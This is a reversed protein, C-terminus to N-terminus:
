SSRMGNGRLGRHMRKLERYGQISASLREICTRWYGEVIDLLVRRCNYNFNM